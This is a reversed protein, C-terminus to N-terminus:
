LGGSVTGSYLRFLASDYCYSVIRITFNIMTSRIPRRLSRLVVVIIALTLALVFSGTTGCCM